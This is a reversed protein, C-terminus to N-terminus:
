KLTELYAILDARQTENKLGAYTMTTGPVKARPNTLYVDLTAVDWTLKAAQNAASYKFGPISGSPRGVIGYLSPGILNKGAEARHCVGCQTKFVKSGAAADGAMAPAATLVLAALAPLISRFNTM